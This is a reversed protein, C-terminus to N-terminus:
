SSSASTWFRRESGAGMDALMVNDPKLDRHVIGRAHAHGIGDLLQRALVLAARPHMPGEAIRDTLSRGVVKEMVLFLAGRDTFVDVAAVLNEHSLLRLANAERALRMAADSGVVSDPLKLAYHQGDLDEVEWVRGMAGRGLQQIVRYRGITM